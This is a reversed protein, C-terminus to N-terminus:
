QWSNGRCLCYQKRWSGYCVLQKWGVKSYPQCICRRYHCVMRRCIGRGGKIAIANIATNAGTGMALWNMQSDNKVFMPKGTGNEPEMRYGATSYSGEAGFKISGDPNLVKEVTTQQAFVSFSLLLIFLSLYRKKM